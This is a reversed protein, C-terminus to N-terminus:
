DDGAHVPARMAKKVARRRKDALMRARAKRSRRRKQRRIKEIRKREASEEGLIHGEIKDLLIRRALFRNMAQTRAIQCKVTQGSPRHFLVVCTATKNVKQGGAGSSRVFNEKLDSEHVRLKRMRRLLDKEKQPSVPFLPM